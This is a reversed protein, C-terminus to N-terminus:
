NLFDNKSKFNRPASLLRKHYVTQSDSAYNWNPFTTSISWDPSLYRLRLYYSFQDLSIAAHWSGDYPYVFPPDAIGSPYDNEAPGRASEEVNKGIWRWERHDYWIENLPVHHPMEFYTLLSTTSPEARTSLRSATTQFHVDHPSRLFNLTSNCTNAIQQVSDCYVRCLKREM